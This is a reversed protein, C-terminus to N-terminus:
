VQTLYHVETEVVRVQTSCRVVQVLIRNQTHVEVQVEVVAAEFEVVVVASHPTLSHVLVLILNLIHAKGVVLGIAAAVLVVVVLVAVVVVLVVEAQKLTWNRGQVRIRNRIHAKVVAVVPGVVVGKRILSRDQIQVVVQEVVVLFLSGIGAAPTGVVRLVM